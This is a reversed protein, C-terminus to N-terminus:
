KERVADALRTLFTKNDPRRQPLGEMLTIYEKKGAEHIKVILDRIDKEVNSRTTHGQKVAPGYAEKLLLTGPPALALQEAALVAYQCGLSNEAAGMRLLLWRARGAAQSGARPARKEAFCYLLEALQPFNVPKTLYYDMGLSAAYRMPLEGALHSIVIIGPRIPPPDDRLVRLLQTGDMMPMVLDLLVVDPQLAWILDLGELGDAGEGCM